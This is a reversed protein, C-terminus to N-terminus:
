IKLVTWTQGSIAVYAIKKIKSYITFKKWIMDLDACLVEMFKYQLQSYINTESFADNRQWGSQAWRHGPYTVPSWPSYAYDKVEALEHGLLRSM